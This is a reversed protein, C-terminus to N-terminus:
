VAEEIVMLLQRAIEEPSGELFERKRERIPAAGLETVITPSGPLGIYDPAADLDTANWVTVREKEFAGPKLRYDMFRPENCATKVSVVCPLPVELIEYGGRLARRGRGIWRDRDVEIETLLTLQGIDLWEALGSPVQGTAGDASEEGCFILDVGGLKRIGQALTYTTALTDAGGFARDSLLYVHECGMALGLRLFPEFYPPGMSLIDVRGGYRDKLDLAMELANMDPPNIESRANSRDLLHTEYDVRIEESRPVVKVCVVIRLDRM